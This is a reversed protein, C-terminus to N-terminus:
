TMDFHVVDNVAPFRKVSRRNRRKLFLVGDFRRNQRLPYCNISTPGITIEFSFFAATQECQTLRSAGFKRRALNDWGRPGGSAVSSAPSQLQELNRVHKKAIQPAGDCSFYACYKAFNAPRNRGAQM